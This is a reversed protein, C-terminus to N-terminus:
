FKLDLKPLSEQVKKELDKSFDKAKKEVSKKKEDITKEFAAIDSRNAELTKEVGEFAAVLTNNKQLSGAIQKEIENGIKEKTEKIMRDIADGVKEKILRDISSGATISLKGGSSFSYSANIAIESASELIDRINEFVINDTNRMSANTDTLILELSGATKDAKDVRIGTSFYITADLSAIGILELGKDISLPFGSIKIDFSVLDDVTERLDITGDLEVKRDYENHVFRIASPSDVLEPANSINALQVATQTTGADSGVSFAANVIMFDPYRSGPYQMNYGSRPPPQGKRGKKGSDLHQLADIGKFLYTHLEGLNAALFKESVSSIIREAGERPAAVFSMLYATDSDIADTIKKREEDIVARDKGVKDATESISRGTESVLKTAKDITAYAKEVDKLTKIKKIDIKTVELVAKSCDNVAPELGDATQRWEETMEAFLRNAEEIREPSKINEKESEIISGIDTGAMNLSFPQAGEEPSEGGNEKERSSVLAGSTNRATDWQIERCEINTVIFKGKLLESMLLDIGTRGLEFLNKYPKESNAVSCHEFSIRAGFIDFVLGDIEAKAGFLSSLSSELAGELLMDRFFVNFVVVVGIIASAVIIKGKQVVGTNKKITKHIRKLQNIDEKALDDKLTYNADNDKIFLSFLREKEKEDFTRKLIKKNFQKETFRKKFFKPPKNAM